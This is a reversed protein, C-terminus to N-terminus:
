SHSDKGKGDSAGGAFPLEIIFRAGKGQDSEVFINGNHEKIIGYSVSLGLGTGKGAEKTTFFPDFIKKLDEEAIGPGDDIFEIRVVNDNTYTRITLNGKGHTEIMAQQANNIMNLFVQEIQQADAEVQPLEEGFEKVININGVELEYSRIDLVMEVLSNVDLPKKEPKQKRAFSLLNSVIKRVREAESWIIDLQKRQDEGLGNEHKKLLQSFGVVATLPNNIEHAVGSILEGVAALKDSQILQEQLLKEKTIDVM